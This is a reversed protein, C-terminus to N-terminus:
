LSFPLSAPLASGATATFVASVPTSPNSRDLGATSTARAYLTEGSLIFGVPLEIEVTANANAVIASQTARGTGRTFFHLTIATATADRGSILVSATIVESPDPQVIDTISITPPLLTAITGMDVPIGDIALLEGNVLILSM